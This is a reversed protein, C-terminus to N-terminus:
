KVLENIELSLNIWKIISNISARFSTSDRAIINIIIKNCSLSLDMHSRFDPSTNIELLVSEYIIEAQNADDFDIIIESEISEVINDHSMM